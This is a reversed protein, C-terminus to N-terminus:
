FICFIIIFKKITFVFIHISFLCFLNYYVWFHAHTNVEMTKQIMNDPCQLFKKGTVIGANNVLIDVNGVERKM